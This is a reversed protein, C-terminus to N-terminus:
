ILGNEAFSYLRGSGVIFHDLVRIDVTALAVKLKQTIQKDAESPITIGSPHNHAFIVAAANVQLARKVVERPHVSAGDITGHFPEEYIILQRQNDLYMCAFSERERNRLQTQLYARTIDPSSIAPGKEIWKNLLVAAAKIIQEETLARRARYKGAADAVFYPLKLPTAPASQAARKTPANM